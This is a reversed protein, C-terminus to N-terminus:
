PNLLSIGELASTGDPIILLAKEFLVQAERIKGMKLNIWGLLSISHYDFPYLNAVKEAYHYANEYEEMEYYLVGMRYNVLSNQPDIKLIEKYTSVVENWNGMASLPLVSGLKPEIAYPMLKIATQYYRQSAAYEGELYSLWGLRANTMYSTKDYIRVLEDIASSYNSDAEYEYSKIFADQLENHQAYSNSSLIGVTIFILFHTRM